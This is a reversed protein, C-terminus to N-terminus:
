SPSNHFRTKLYNNLNGDSPLAHKFGSGYQSSKKGGNTGSSWMPIRNGDYVVFNGDDEIVAFGKKAWNDGNKGIYVSTYWTIKSNTDFVVLHNDSSQMSLTYPSGEQHGGTNSAWLHTKAKGIKKYLVLNGDNQMEVIYTGNKSKIIENNGLKKGARLDNAM